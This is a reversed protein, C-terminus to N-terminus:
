RSGAAIKTGDSNFVVHNANMTFRTLIGDPAGEPFTHIQVTNNSAATILRGNKFVFLFVNTLSVMNMGLSGFLGQHEWHKPLNVKTAGFSM